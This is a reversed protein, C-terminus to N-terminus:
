RSGRGSALLVGVSVVLIAIWDTSSPWEGLMPIAFLASLPPVLAGFSAGRSAGLMSICQGYLYLALVTAILGQYVAQIAIDMLPAELLSHDPMSLYLPLFGIASFVSVLSTAHLPALQALRMTVTFAAWMFAAMMFCAVGVVSTGGGQEVVQYAVLFAVLFILSFGILRPRDFHEKLVHRALLAVYLPMVGPILVGAHSAPVFRLGYSAVLVYPAGAGLVLIFLGRWGLKDLALGDRFVVPLLVLGATSFRLATIDWPSLTTTVGLRTISMWSAWISVASLGFLAGVIQRRNLSTM